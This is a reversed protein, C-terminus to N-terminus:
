CNGSLIRMYSFAVDLRVTIINRKRFVCLVRQKAVGLLQVCQQPLAARLKSRQVLVDNAIYREIFAAQSPTQSLTYRHKLQAEDRILGQDLLKQALVERYQPKGGGLENGRDSVLTLEHVLAGDSDFVNAKNAGDSRSRSRSRSRPAPALASCLTLLSLAAHSRRQDSVRHQSGVSFHLVGGDGRTSSQNVVESTNETSTVARSDSTRFERNFQTISVDISYVYSYM